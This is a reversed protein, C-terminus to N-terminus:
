CFYKEWNHGMDWLEGKSYDAVNGEMVLPVGRYEPYSMEFFEKIKSSILSVEDRHVFVEIADHIMSFIKSKLNNEKIFNFLKQTARQMIVSEENQTPSNLSISIYNSTRKGDDEVGTLCSHLFPMRRFAGYASRIYGHKSAFSFSKSSWEVLGSYTEFFKKHLYTAVTYKASSKDRYSLMDLKNDIVFKVADEEEWTPDIFQRYLLGAKGGFLLLFNMSKAYQRATLVEADKKDKLELFEDITYKNNLIALSATVSHADGGLNIFVDRLTKDRSAMSAIRMQLGSQDASLFMYEDSPPCFMKKIKKAGEGHSPFNQFNPKKSKMRGSDALMVAFDSHIRNSGDKHKRIYQWMGTAKGNSRREGEVGVFTKMLAQKERLKLFLEAGYHGDKKWKSLCEDNTLYIGKKSVGYNKWGKKEFLKGLQDGSSLNTENNKLGFEQCIDNEIVRIEKQLEQGIRGLEETNIYMGEIEIYSFMRVSPMVVDFFYKELNYGSLKNEMPFKEDLLRIRKLLQQYVQYTVIVDMMAYKSLTNIPIKSYDKIRYKQKYEDLEWDYGGNVDYLWAQTKLGHGQMENVVHHANMTDFYLNINDINVGFSYFMKIDFKGNAMILKKNKFWQNLLRLNMGEVSLFFAKEGDFSATICFIENKTFDLGNTETDLAVETELHMTDRLWQNVDQVVELEINSEERIVVPSEFAKSIQYLAFNREFNDLYKWAHYNDVPYVECKIHPNYFSTEELLTDYFWDPELDGNSLAYVAKGISVVKSNPKIYKKLQVCNKVYFKKESTKMNELDPVIDFPAIIQFPRNNSVRKVMKIFLELSSKNFSKVLKLDQLSVKKEVASRLLKSEQRYECIQNYLVFTVQPEKDAYLVPSLIRKVKGRKGTSVVPEFDWDM